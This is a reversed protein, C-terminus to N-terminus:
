RYGQSVRAPRRPVPHLAAGRREDHRTYFMGLDALFDSLDPTVATQWGRGREMRAYGGRSGKRQQIAKVAPTFVIDSPLKHM